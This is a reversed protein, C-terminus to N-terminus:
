FFDRLPWAPFGHQGRLGKAFSRLMEHVTLIDCLFQPHLPFPRNDPETGSVSLAVLALPRGLADREKNLADMREFQHRKLATLAAADLERSKEAEANTLGKPPLYPAIRHATADRYVKAYNNFWTQMTKGQLYADFDASLHPRLAKSFLGIKMKNADPDPFGNELACVWAVNDLVGYVNIVFAQINVTVDNQEGKGLMEARGPPFIEFIRELCHEILGLRRMVGEHLFVKARPVLLYNALHDLDLRLSISARRIAHLEAAMKEIFVADFNM